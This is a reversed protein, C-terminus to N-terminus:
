LGKFFSKTNDKKVQKQRAKISVKKNKKNKKKKEEESEEDSEDSDSEFDESNQMEKGNWAIASSQESELEAEM